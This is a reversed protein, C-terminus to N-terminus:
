NEKFRGAKLRIFFYFFEPLGFFIKKIISYNSKGHQRKRHIVSFTHVKEAGNFIAILPMYRHDNYKLNKANIFNRKYSVLSSSYTPLDVKILFRTIFNYIFTLIVILTPHKRVLRNALIVDYDNKMLLQLIKKLHIPNDQNDSDIRIFFDSKFYKLYKKYSLTQGLKKKNDILYFKKSNLYKKVVKESEDTSGDNIFIYRIRFQNFNSTSKIIQPILIELNKYENYFPVVIDINKKKNNKFKM